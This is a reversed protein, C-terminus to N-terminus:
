SARTSSGDSSRSLSPKELRGRVRSSFANKINQAEDLIIFRWKDAHEESFFISDGPRVVFVDGQRVQEIPVEVERGDRVLVATKASLKMLSKLADTTRGKSRAELMKGVTILALIMAASEFYLNMMCEMVATQDGDTVARTM